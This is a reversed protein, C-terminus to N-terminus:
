RGILDVLVLEKMSSAILLPQRAMSLRIEHRAVGTQKETCMLMLGVRKAGFRCLCCSINRIELGKRYEAQMVESLVRDHRFLWGLFSFYTKISLVSNM